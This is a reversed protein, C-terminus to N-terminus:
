VEPTRIVSLMEELLHTIENLLNLISKIFLELVENRSM